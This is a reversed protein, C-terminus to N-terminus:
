LCQASTLDKGMTTWSAPTGNLHSKEPKRMETTLPTNHDWMNGRKTRLGSSKMEQGQCGNVQNLACM